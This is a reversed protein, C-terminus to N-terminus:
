RVFNQKYHHRKQIRIIDNRERLYTGIGTVGRWKLNMNESEVSRANSNRRTCCVLERSASLVSTEAARSVVAGIPNEPVMQDGTGRM